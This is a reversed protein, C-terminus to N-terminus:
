GYVGVEYKFIKYSYQLEAAADNTSMDLFDLFSKIERSLRFTIAGRWYTADAIAQRLFSKTTIRRNLVGLLQLIKAAKPRTKKVQKFNIDFAEMLSNSYTPGQVKSNFIQKRSGANLTRIYDKFIINYRRIYAASLTLALSLKGTSGLIEQLQEFGISGHIKKLITM